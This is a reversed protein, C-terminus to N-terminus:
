FSIQWMVKGEPVFNRTIADPLTKTGASYTTQSPMDSLVYDGDGPEHAVPVNVLGQFEFILKSWDKLYYSIAPTIEYFPKSGITGAFGNPGMNTDPALAAVRVAFEWPKRAASGQIRATYMMLSGLDDSFGDMDAQFEGTLAYEGVMGRVLGNVGFSYLTAKDATTLYPNWAANLLLNQQYVDNAEGAKINMVSSHGIITDIEYAGQLYLAEQTRDVKFQNAQTSALPGAGTDDYGIRAMMLPTGFNEPLAHIPLAATDEGGGSFVGLAWNLANTKQTLALGVERGMNAGLNAISLETFLRQNDPTLFEAGYPSKFQGVRLFTSDWMPADFRMELLTFAPNASGPTMEEGGLALETYFNYDALHGQFGVRAQQLFLYARADKKPVDDSVYEGLGLLQGTGFLSFEDTGNNMLEIAHSNSSSLACGLVGLSVCFRGLTSKKM